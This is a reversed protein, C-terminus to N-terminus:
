GEASEIGMRKLGDALSKLLHHLKYGVNGVSLGTRESIEAYALGEQYKLRILSREVEPLEALLLRVAGAAEYKSLEGDPSRSDDAQEPVEGDSERRHDRRYNLALNKVCRYLWPKPQNVEVWHVQLRLFAEQVLDEAVERRGLVGYAYRLLPGEEEEFLEKLCPLPQSMQPDVQAAVGEIAPNQRVFPM